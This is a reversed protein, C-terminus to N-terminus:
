AEGKKSAREFATKLSREGLVGVLNRRYKASAHIDSGPEAVDKSAAVHAAEHILDPTPKQGVLVKAAEHAIVPVVDVSFYVMRAEQCIDNNNLTMVTAVGVLAAAGHQRAVQCYSTGTHPPLGQIKIEVLMEGPELVNMFPGSFFKEAELWREAGKRKLLLQAKLAVVVPPVHGTPDSHAINGGFTGRNRIQAHALDPMMEPIIPFRRGVEPDFELTSDRTMTGVAMGGDAGPKIYFLESVNNLDVLAAPQAMRFNMMPVLSQGGALIKGDYGLQSLQDLAEELSAPAYYDFPAPKM